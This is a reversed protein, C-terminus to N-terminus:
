NIKVVNGSLVTEHHTAGGSKLPLYNVTHGPRVFSIEIVVLIFIFGFFFTRQTVGGLMFLMNKVLSNSHPPNRRGGIM